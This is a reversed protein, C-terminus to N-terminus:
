HFTCIFNYIRYVHSFHLGRGFSKSCASPLLPSFFTGCSSLLVNLLLSLKKGATIKSVSSTQTCLKLELIHLFESMGCHLLSFLFVELLDRKEREPNFLERRFCTRHSVSSPVRLRPEGSPGDQRGPTIQLFDFQQKKKFLSDPRSLSIIEEDNQNLLSLFGASLIRPNWVCSHQLRRLHEAPSLELFVSCEPTM